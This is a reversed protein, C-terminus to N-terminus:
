MFYSIEDNPHGETFLENSVIKIESHPTYDNPCLQITGWQGMLRVLPSGSIKSVGVFTAATMHVLPQVHITILM